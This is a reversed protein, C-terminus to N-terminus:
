FYLTAKLKLSWDGGTSKLRGFETAKGGVLTEGEASLDMGEITLLTASAGLSASGDRLNGLGSVELSIKRYIELSGVLFLYHRGLYPAAPYGGNALLYADVTEFYREEEADTYGTGAYLYEAAAYFSYDTMGEPSWNRSVGAAALPYPEWAEAENFAPLTEDPYLTQNLFEVAGEATLVFGAIEYSLGLGPRMTADRRYVGSLALDLNGFFWSGYLAYKLDTYFDENASGASSEASLPASFDVAGTLQLDPSPTLLASVGTFGEVDDRNHSPHLSDTPFFTIGRGWSVRQKGAGVSLLDSPRYDIYAEYLIHDPEEYRDLTGKHRAIFSFTDFDFRHNLEVGLLSDLRNDQVGDPTRRWTSELSVEGFVSYEQAVLGAPSCFSILILGCGFLLRFLRM